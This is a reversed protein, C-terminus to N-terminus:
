YASISLPSLVATSPLFHMSLKSNVPIDNGDIIAKVKLEIHFDTDIMLFLSAKEWPLYFKSNLIM